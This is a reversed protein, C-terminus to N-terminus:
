SCFKGTGGFTPFSNPNQLTVFAIVFDAFYEMRKMAANL